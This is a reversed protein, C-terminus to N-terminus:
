PAAGGIRRSFVVTEQRSWQMVGALLEHFEKTKPRDIQGSIPYILVRDGKTILNDADELSARAFVIAEHKPTEKRGEGNMYDLWPDRKPGFDPKPLMWHGILDYSAGFVEAAVVIIPFTSVFASTLRDWRVYHETEGPALQSISNELHAVNRPNSLGDCTPLEELKSTYFRAEDVESAKRDM